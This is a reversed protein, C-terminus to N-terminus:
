RWMFIEMRCNFFKSLRIMMDYDDCGEDEISQYYALSIGFHDAVEEPTLGMSERAKRRQKYNETEAGETSAPIGQHAKSKRRKPNAAKAEEEKSREWKAQAEAPSVEYEEEQSKVGLGFKEADRQCDASLHGVRDLLDRYSRWLRDVATEASEKPGAGLMERIRQHEQELRDLRQRDKATINM